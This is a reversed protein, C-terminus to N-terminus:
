YKVCRFGVRADQVATESGVNDLKRPNRNHLVRRFTLCPTQHCAQTRTWESPLSKSSPEQSPAIVVTGGNGNDVEKASILQKNKWACYNVADYYTVCNIASDLESPLEWRCKYESDGDSCLALGNHHTYCTSSGLRDGGECAGHEVCDRYERVTVLRRDLIGNELTLEEKEKSELWEPEPAFQASEVYIGEQSTFIPDAVAVFTGVVEAWSDRCTEQYDPFDIDPQYGVFSLATDHQYMTPEDRHESRCTTQICPNLINRGQSPNLFPAGRIRIRKKVYREPHKTLQEWTVRPINKLTLNKGTMTCRTKLKKRYIQEGWNVLPPNTQQSTSHCGAVVWLPLLTLWNVMRMSRGELRHISYGNQMSDVRNYEKNGEMEIFM